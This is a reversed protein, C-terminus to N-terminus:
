EEIMETVDEVIVSKGEYEFFRYREAKELRSKVLECM